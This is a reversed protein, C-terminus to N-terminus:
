FVFVGLSKGPNAWKEERRQTAGLPEGPFKSPVGDAVFLAEFVSGGL